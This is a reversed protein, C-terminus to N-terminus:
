GTARGSFVTAFFVAAPAQGQVQQTYIGSTGDYGLSTGIHNLTGTESPFAPQVRSILSWANTRVEYM